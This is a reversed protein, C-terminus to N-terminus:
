TARVNAGKAEEGIRDILRELPGVKASGCSKLIAVVVSVEKAHLIKLLQSYKIMQYKWHHLEAIPGIEESDKRIQEAESLAQKAQHHWTVCLALLCLPAYSM